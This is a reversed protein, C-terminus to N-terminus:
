VTMCVNCEGMIRHYIMINFLDLQDASEQDGIRYCDDHDTTIMRTNTTMGRLSGGHFGFPLPLEDNEAAVSQKEVVSPERTLPQLSTAVRLDRVHRPMGDVEVNEASTWM